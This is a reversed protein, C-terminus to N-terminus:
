RLSNREGFLVIREHYPACETARRPPCLIQPVESVEFRRPFSLLRERLGFQVLRRAVEPRLVNEEVPEIHAPEPWFGNWKRAVTGRSSAFNAVPQIAGEKAAKSGERSIM